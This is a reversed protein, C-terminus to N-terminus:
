NNGLSIISKVSACIAIDAGLIVEFEAMNPASDNGNSGKSKMLGFDLLRSYEVGDASSYMRSSDSGSLIQRLTARYNGASGPRLAESVSAALAANQKRLLEVYATTARHLNSEYSLKAELLVIKEHASKSILEDFHDDSTSVSLDFFSPMEIGESILEQRLCASTISEPTCQVDPLSTNENDCVDNSHAAVSVKMVSNKRKRSAM